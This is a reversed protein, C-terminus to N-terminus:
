RRHSSPRLIVPSVADDYNVADGWPTSYRDTFYPGYERLHNGEPGLHNYVVDLLVSLGAGHAANVLRRLGEPGGHAHHPAFLHVGDYGWGRDGSFEAIPMLEVHTIGPEALEALREIAADFTGDPTFTGVHLEYIVADALTRANFAADTWAFPAEPLTRSLGNVGDPQWATRPGPIPHGGDLVFGYDTAGPLSIAATRWGRGDLEMPHRRGATFLEVREPIPAWVSPRTSM